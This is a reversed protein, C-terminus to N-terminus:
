DFSRYYKKPKTSLNARIMVDRLLDVVITYFLFRTQRRSPKQSGRGFDYQDTAKELLYAAYLDDVGFPDDSQEVIKKFVRGNPVFASNRGFATGAERLWGAGYVKLLDFANTCGWLLTFCKLLRHSSNLHDDGDNRLSM